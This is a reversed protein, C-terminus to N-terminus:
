HTLKKINLLVGFDFVYLSHVAKLRATSYLLWTFWIRDKTNVENIKQISLLPCYQDTNTNDTTVNSTSKRLCTLIYLRSVSVCVCMRERGFHWRYITYSSMFDATYIHNIKHPIYTSVHRNCVFVGFSYVLMQNQCYNMRKGMWLAPPKTRKKENNWNLISKGIKKSKSQRM